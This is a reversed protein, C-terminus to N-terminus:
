SDASFRVSGAPIRVDPWVRIGSTLENDAGIDANDGIVADCVVTGAGIRAGAGIVSRTIRAGAGIDAGDFVISGARVVSRIKTRCRHGAPDPPPERAPHGSRWGPRYQCPLRRCSRPCGFLRPRTGPDLCEFADGHFRGGYTMLTTM